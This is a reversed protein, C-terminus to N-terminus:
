KSIFRNAKGRKKKRELSLRRSIRDTPLGSQQLITASFIGQFETDLTKSWIGMSDMYPLSCRFFNHLFFAMQSMQKYRAQYMRKKQCVKEGFRLTPNKVHCLWVAMKSALYDGCTKLSTKTAFLPQQNVLSVLSGVRTFGCMFFAVHIRRPQSNSEFSHRLLNQKWIRRVM